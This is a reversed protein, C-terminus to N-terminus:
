IQEFIMEIKNIEDPPLSNPYNKFLEAINAYTLVYVKRAVRYDHKMCKIIKKEGKRLPKLHIKDDEVLQIM